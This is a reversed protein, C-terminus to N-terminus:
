FLSLLPGEFWKLDAVYQFKQTGIRMSPQKQLLSEM